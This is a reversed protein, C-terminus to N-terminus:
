GRDNEDASRRRDWLGGGSLFSMRRGGFAVVSISSSASSAGSRRMRSPPVFTETGDPSSTPSSSSPSSKLYSLSPASSPFIMGSICEITSGGVVGADGYALIKYCREDYPPLTRGEAAGGVLGRGGAEEEAATAPGDDVIIPLGGGLVFLPRSEIWPGRAFVVRGRSELLDRHHNRREDDRVEDDDRNRRREDNEGAASSEPPPFRVTAVTVPGGHLCTRKLVDVNLLRQSHDDPSDNNPPFEADRVTRRTTTM